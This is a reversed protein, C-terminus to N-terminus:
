GQHLLLFTRGMWFEGEGGWTEQILLHPSKRAESMMLLNFQGGLLTPVWSLALEGFKPAYPFRGPKSSTTGSYSRSPHIPTWWESSVRTFMQTVSAHLLNHFPILSLCPGPWSPGQLSYKSALLVEWFCRQTTQNLRAGEGCPEQKSPDPQNSKECSTFFAGIVQTDMM